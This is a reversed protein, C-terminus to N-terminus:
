SHISAAFQFGFVIREAHSRAPMFVIAAASASIASTFVRLPSTNYESVSL